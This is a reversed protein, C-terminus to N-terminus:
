NTALSFRNWTNGLNRVVIRYTQTQGPVWTVLERDTLGIGQVILRGNSDYVFIDLDTSGDGVIAIRAQEGGWFTINYSISGQAECITTDEGPGNQRGADAISVTVLSLSLVVFLSLVIKKM